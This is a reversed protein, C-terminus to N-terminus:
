MGLDFVFVKDGTTLSLGTATPPIDFAVGTSYPLGPQLADYQSGIAFVSYTLSFLSDQDVTYSRGESDTLVLDEYPFPAPATGVNTVNFYVILYVGRATHQDYDTSIASTLERNTVTVSWAEGTYTDGVAYTAGTAPNTPAAAPQTLDTIRQKLQQNEAELVAVQAELEAIRAQLEDVSPPTASPTGPPTGTTDTQALAAGGVGLSLVLMALILWIRKISRQQM